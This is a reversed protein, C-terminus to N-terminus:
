YARSTRNCDQQEYRCDCQVSRLREIRKEAGQDDLEIISEGLVIRILIHTRNNYRTTVLRKCTHHHLRVSRDYSQRVTAPASMLSIAGKDKESAYVLFKMADHDFKIFTRIGTM